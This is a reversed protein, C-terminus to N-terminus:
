VRKHTHHNLNLSYNEYLRGKDSSVAKGSAKKESESSRARNLVQPRAVGVIM